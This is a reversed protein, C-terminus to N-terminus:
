QYGENEEESLLQSEFATKSSQEKISKASGFKLGSKDEDMKLNLLIDFSNRIYELVVFPDLDFLNKKEDNLMSEDLEDEEKRIKVTLYLEVIAETLSPMEEAESETYDVSDQCLHTMHNQPHADDWISSMEVTHEEESNEFSDVINM